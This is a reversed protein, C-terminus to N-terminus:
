KVGFTLTAIAAKFKPESLCALVDAGMGMGMGASGSAQVVEVSMAERTKPGAAKIAATLTRFEPAAADTLAKFEAGITPCNGINAEIVKAMAPMKAVAAVILQHQAPSVIGDDKAPPADSASKCGTIAAVLGATIAALRTPHM